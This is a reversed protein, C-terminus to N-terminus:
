CLCEWLKDLGVVTTGQLVLRCDYPSPKGKDSGGRYASSRHQLNDAKTVLVDHKSKSKSYGSYVVCIYALCQMLCALLSVVPLDWLSISM